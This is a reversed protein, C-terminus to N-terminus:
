SGVTVAPLVSEGFAQIFRVQERNVNHLILLDFGMAADSQLWEIHRRPDSSIRVFRDLDEPRVFQAAADFQAPLRLDALVPSDFV